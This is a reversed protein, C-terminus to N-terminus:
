RGPRAVRHLEDVDSPPPSAKKSRVIVCPISVRMLSPVARSAPADDFGDEVELLRHASALGVQENAEAQECSMRLQACGAAGCILWMLSKLLALIAANLPRLLGSM